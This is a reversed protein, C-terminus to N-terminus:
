SSSGFISCTTACIFSACSENCFIVCSRALTALTIVAIVVATLTPLSSADMAPYPRAEGTNEGDTTFARTLWAQLQDIEMRFVADSEPVRRRLQSHSLSIRGETALLLM